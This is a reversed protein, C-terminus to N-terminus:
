RTKKNCFLGFLCMGMLLAESASLSVAGAYAGYGKVLALTILCSCVGAILVSRFFYNQRDMNVLGVIGAIYNVEGFIIVLSMIRILPVCERFEKGCLM